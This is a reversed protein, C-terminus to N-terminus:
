TPAEWAHEPAPFVRLVGFRRGPSPGPQAARCWFGFHRPLCLERVKDMLVSTTANEEQLQQSSSCLNLWAHAPHSGPSPQTRCMRDERPFSPRLPRLHGLMRGVGQRPQQAPLTQRGCEGASGVRRCGGRTGLWGRTVGSLVLLAGTQGAILCRAASGEEGPRLLYRGREPRGAAGMEERKSEMRILILWKAPVAM